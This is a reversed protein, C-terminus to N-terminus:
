LLPEDNGSSKYSCVEDKVFIGTPNLLMSMIEALNFGNARPEDSLQEDAIILDFSGFYESPLM